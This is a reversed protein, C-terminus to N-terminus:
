QDLYADKDSGTDSPDSVDGDFDEITALAMVEKEQEEKILLELDEFPNTAAVEGPTAGAIFKQKERLAQVCLRSAKRATEADGEKKSAKFQRSIIDDFIFAPNYHRPSGHWTIDMASEIETFDSIYEYHRSETLDEPFDQYKLWDEFTMDEVDWFYTSYIEIQEANWSVIPTRPDVAFVEAISEASMGQFLMVSVARRLFFSRISQIVSEVLVVDPDTVKTDENARIWKFLHYIGAKRLQSPEYKYYSHIKQAERQHYAFYKKLNGKGVKTWPTYFGFRDLENLTDSYTFGAYAYAKLARRYPVRCGSPEV